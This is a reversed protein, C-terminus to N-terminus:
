QHWQGVLRRLEAAAWEAHQKHRIMRGAAFEKGNSGLLLLSYMPTRGSQMGLRVKVDTVENCPTTRSTGIGLVTTRVTVTGAAVNIITTSFWLQLTVVVLLLGFGGFVVSFLLPADLTTILWVVGIWVAVLITAGTAAAISQHPPIVIDTGGNDAPRTEIVLEAPRSDETVPPHSMVPTPVAAAATQGTAFVPVEYRAEFDVGPVDASVHLRWVIQNSSDQLDTPRCEAPILFSAPVASGPATSRATALVGKHEEQWMTTETTSRSKGSGSTVRHVCALEVAFGTAPELVGNLEVTGELVGGISGPISHMVFVTQGFKKWRITARVAWVLLGLGVLPFILMLLSIYNETALEQPLLIAVLTSSIANWLIAFAWAGILITRDTSLARGESWDVRWLWPMGPHAARLVDERRKKRMGFVIATLVGFGVGGFVVGFVFLLLAQSWDGEAASSFAMVLTVLGVICFPLLFLSIFVLGAKEPVTM